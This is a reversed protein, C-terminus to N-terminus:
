DILNAPLKYQPPTHSSCIYLDASVPSHRYIQRTKLVDYYRSLSVHFVKSNSHISTGAWVWHEPPWGHSACALNLVLLHPSWERWGLIPALFCSYPPPAGWRTEIQVSVRQWRDWLQTSKEQYRELDLSREQKLRYLQDAVVKARALDDELTAFITNKDNLESIWQKLFFLM